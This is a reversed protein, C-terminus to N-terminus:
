PDRASDDAAPPEEPLAGPVLAAAAFATIMFGFSAAVGVAHAWHM